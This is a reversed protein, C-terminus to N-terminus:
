TEMLGISLSKPLTMPIIKKMATTMAIRTMTMTMAIKKITMRAMAIKEMTMAMMTVATRKMTMTMRMSVKGIVKAIRETMVALNKKNRYM